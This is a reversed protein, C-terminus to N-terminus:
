FTYLALWYLSLFSIFLFFVIRNECMTERAAAEEVGRRGVNQLDAIAVSCDGAAAALEVLQQPHREKIVSDLQINCGPEHRCVKGDPTVRAVDRYSKPLVAGYPRNFM